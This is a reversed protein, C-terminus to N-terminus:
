VAVPLAGCLHETIGVRDAAKVKLLEVVPGTGSVRGLCPSVQAVQSGVQWGPLDRALCLV